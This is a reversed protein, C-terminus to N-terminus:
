ALQLCTHSLGSLPAPGSPGIPAHLFLPGLTHPGLHTCLGLACPTQLVTLIDKLPASACLVFFVVIVPLTLLALGQTFAEFGRLSVSM